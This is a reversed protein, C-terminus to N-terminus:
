ALGDLALHGVHGTEAAKVDDARVPVLAQADVPLEAAAGAALPIGARGVEEDAEFIIDELAVAEGAPEEGAVTERAAVGGDVVIEQARLDDVALAHDLAAIQVDAPREPVVRREHFGLPPDDGAPAVRNEGGVPSLGLHREPWPGFEAVGPGSPEAFLGERAQGPPGRQDM